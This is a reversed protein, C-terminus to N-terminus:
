SNRILSSIHTILVYNKTLLTMIEYIATYSHYFNHHCNTRRNMNIVPSLLPLSHFSVNAQGCGHTIWQHKLREDDNHMYHWLSTEMPWPTLKQFIWFNM